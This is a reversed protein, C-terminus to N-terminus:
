KTSGQSSKKLRDEFRKQFKQLYDSYKDWVAQLVEPDRIKRPDDWWDPKKDIITDFTAIMHAFQQAIFNVNSLGALERAEIVGIQIREGITPRHITFTGTYEDGLEKDVTFSYTNLLKEEDM